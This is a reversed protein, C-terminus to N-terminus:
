VYGEVSHVPKLLIGIVSEANSDNVFSLLKEITKTKTATDFNYTGYGGVLHPLVAVMVLSDAEAAQVLVKLSKEAARHM